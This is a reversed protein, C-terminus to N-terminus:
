CCLVTNLLANKVEDLINKNKNTFFDVSAEDGVVRIGRTKKDIAFFDISLMESKM